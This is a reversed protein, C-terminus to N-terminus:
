HISTLRLGPIRQVVQNQNRTRLACPFWLDAVTFPKPLCQCATKLAFSAIRQGLRLLMAKRSQHCYWTAGATELTEADIAAPALAMLLGKSQSYHVSIGASPCWLCLRSKLPATM